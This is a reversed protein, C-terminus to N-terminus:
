LPARVLHALSWCRKASKRCYKTRVRHTVCRQRPVPARELFKEVKPITMKRM